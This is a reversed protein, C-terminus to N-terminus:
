HVQIISHLQLFLALKLCCGKKRWNNRDSHPNRGTWGESFKMESIVLCIDVFKTTAGHM